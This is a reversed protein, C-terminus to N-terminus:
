FGGCPALTLISPNNDAWNLMANWEGSTKTPAFLMLSSSKVKKCANFVDITQFTSTIQYGTDPTNIAFCPRSGAMILGATVALIGTIWATTRM